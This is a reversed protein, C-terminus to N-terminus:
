FCIASGATLLSSQARQPRLQSFGTSNQTSPKLTLRDSSPAPAASSTVVPAALAGAQQGHLMLMRMYACQPQCRRCRRGRWLLLRRSCRGARRRWAGAHRRASRCEGAGEGTWLQLPACCRSVGARGGLPPRRGCKVRQKRRRSNAPDAQRGCAASQTCRRHVPESLVDKREEGAKGFPDLLADRPQASHLTLM